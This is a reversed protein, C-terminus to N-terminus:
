SRPAAMGDRAPVRGLPREDLGYAFELDHGVGDPLALLALDAPGIAAVLEAAPWPGVRSLASSVLRVM